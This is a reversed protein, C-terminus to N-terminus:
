GKKQKPQSGRVSDALWNLYPKSGAVIPLAIIEPVDYRHLRRIEKELAAFRQRTTKILLSVENATEVKGKWRYISRVSSSLINVCAALRAGVLAKALRNAEKTSGCTVVVVINRSM